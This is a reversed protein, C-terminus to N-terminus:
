PVPNGLEVVVASHDSAKGVDLTAPASLPTFGRTLVFDYRCPVGNRRHSTALPGEPRDARLRQLELPNAELFVRLSDRYEHISRTPDHLLYEERDQSSGDYWYVNQLINPHDLKPGNADVGAAGDGLECLVGAVARIVGRKGRWGWRTGQAAPIHFSAVAVDRGDASVEALMTLDRAPERVSEPVDMLEENTLRRCRSVEVSRGFFLASGYECRDATSAEDLAFAAADFRSDRWGPSRQQLSRRPPSFTRSLRKFSRLRGTRALRAAPV